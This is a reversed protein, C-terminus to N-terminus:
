VLRAIAGCTAGNGPTQIVVRLFIRRSAKRTTELPKQYNSNLRRRRIVGGSRHRMRPGILAEM